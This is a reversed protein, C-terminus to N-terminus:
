MCTCVCVCAGCGAQNSWLGLLHVAPHELSPFTPAVMPPSVLFISRHQIAPQPHIPFLQRVCLYCTDADNACRPAPAGAPPQTPLMGAAHHRALTRASQSIVQSNTVLGSPCSGRDLHDRFVRMLPAPPHCTIRHLSLPCLLFLVPWFCFDGLKETFPRITPPSQLHM